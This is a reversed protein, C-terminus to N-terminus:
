TKKIRKSSMENSSLVFTELLQQTHCKGGWLQNKNPGTLLQCSAIRTALIPGLLLNLLGFFHYM